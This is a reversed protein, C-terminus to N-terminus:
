DRRLKFGYETYDLKETWSDLGIDRLLDRGRVSSTSSFVRGIQRVSTLFSDSYGEVTKLVINGTFGDTVVVDFSHAVRWSDVCRGVTVFGM